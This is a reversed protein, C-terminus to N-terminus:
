RIRPPPRRMPRPPDPIVEVDEIVDDLVEIDDIVDVVEIVGIDDIVDDVVEVVEISDDAFRVDEVDDVIPIIQSPSVDIVDDEVVEVVDVVYPEDDMAIRPSGTVAAPVPSAVGSRGAPRHLMTSPQPATGSQPTQAAPQAVAPARDIVLRTPRVPPQFNELFQYKIDGIAVEMGESLQMEKEIRVGNVFVGNMSGLDRVYWTADVQVLACHLRSIKSSCDIVVDCEPSRGVLVVARDVAIQPGQNLPKLVAVM